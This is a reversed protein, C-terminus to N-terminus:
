QATDTSCRQCRIRNELSWVTQRYARSNEGDYWRDRRFRLLVIPPVGQMGCPTGGTGKLLTHTMIKRAIKPPRHRAASVMNPTTVQMSAKFRFYERSSLSRTYWYHPVQVDDPTQHYEHYEVTVYCYRWALVSARDYARPIGVAMPLCVRTCAYLTGIVFDYYVFGM